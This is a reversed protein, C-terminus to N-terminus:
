QACARQLKGSYLAQRGGCVIQTMKAQAARASVKATTMAFDPHPVEAVHRDIPVFVAKLRSASKPWDSYKTTKPIHPLSRRPRAHHCVEVGWLASANHFPRRPGTSQWAPDVLDHHANRTLDDNVLINEISACKYRRCRCRFCLYSRRGRRDGLRNRIPGSGASRGGANRAVIGSGLDQLRMAVRRPCRRARFSSRYSRLCRSMEAASQTTGGDWAKHIGGRRMWALRM